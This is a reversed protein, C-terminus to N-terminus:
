SVLVGIAKKKRTLYFDLMRQGECISVTDIHVMRKVVKNWRLIRLKNM